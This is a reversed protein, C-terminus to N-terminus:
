ILCFVTMIAIRSEKHMATWGLMFGSCIYSGIGCLFLRVTIKREEYLGDVAKKLSDYNEGRIALDAGWVLCWSSITMVLVNLGISICTFM